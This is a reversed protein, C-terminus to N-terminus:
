GMWFSAVPGIGPKYRLLPDTRFYENLTAFDRRRFAFEALYPIVRDRHAGQELAAQIFAEARELEGKWLYIRGLLVQLGADVGDLQLARNAYSISQDAFFTALENKAMGNYLVEWYAFALARCLQAQEVPDETGRLAKLAHSIEASIVKERRDYLNFALLRIEDDNDSTALQLLRSANVGSGSGVALLAKLRSARPLEVTRLRSWAGGEGMGPAPGGAENMFPPMPVSFFETRTVQRQFFRFYILAAFMGVAGFLPIFFSFSFFLALAGARNVEYRRPLTAAMLLSFMASAIAHGSLFLLLQAWVPHPSFLALIASQEGLLGYILLKVTTM